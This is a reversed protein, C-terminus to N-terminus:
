VISLFIEVSLCAALFLGMVLVLRSSFLLGSDSAHSVRLKNDRSGGTNRAGIVRGIRSILIEFRRASGRTSLWRIVGVCRRNRAPHRAIVGAESERAWSYYVLGRRGARLSEMGVGLVISLMAKHRAHVKAALHSFFSRLRLIFRGYSFARRPERPCNLVYDGPPSRRRLSNEEIYVAHIRRNRIFILIRGPGISLGSSRGERM